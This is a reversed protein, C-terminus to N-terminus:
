VLMAARFEEVARDDIGLGDRVYADVSAHREEIADFAAGIYHPRVDMLARVAELGSADVESPDIGQATALMARIGDLRKESQEALLASSLLYDEIVVDRPVGLISLTLACVLGTRDKGATCNVMVPWSEPDMVVQLARTLTDGHDLVMLRNGRVAMDVDLADLDGTRVAEAIALPDAGTPNDIPLHVIAEPDLVSPPAHEVEGTTRLDLARRLGIVETVEVIDSETLRGLEGSRYIRGWRVTAGDSTAYGGLDRFNPQGELPIHRRM